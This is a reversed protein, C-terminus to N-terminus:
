PVVTVQDGTAYAQKQQQMTLVFNTHHLRHSLLQALQPSSTDDLVEAVTRLVVEAVDTFHRRELHLQLSKLADVTPQDVLLSWVSLCNRCAMSWRDTRMFRDASLQMSLQNDSGPVSGKTVVV